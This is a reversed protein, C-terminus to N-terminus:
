AREMMFQKSDPISLSEAIRKVSLPDGQVLNKFDKKETLALRNDNGCRCEFGWQLDARWRAALFNTLMQKRFYLVQHVSDDIGLIDSQKCNLCTVKYQQM